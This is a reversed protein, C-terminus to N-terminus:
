QTKLNGFMLLASVADREQQVLEFQRVFQANMKKRIVSTREYPSPYMPPRLPTSFFKFRNTTVKRHTHMLLMYNLSAREAILIMHLLRKQEPTRFRKMIKVISATQVPVENARRM